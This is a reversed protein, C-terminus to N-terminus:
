EQVVLTLGYERDEIAIGNPFYPIIFTSDRTVNLEMVDITGNRDVSYRLDNASSSNTIEVEYTRVVEDNQRLTIVREGFGRRVRVLAPTVNKRKGEVYVQAVKPPVVSTDAEVVLFAPRTPGKTENTQACGALLLIVFVSFLPLVLSRKM